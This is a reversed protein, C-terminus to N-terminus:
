RFDIGRAGELQGRAGIRIGFCNKGRALDQAKDPGSVTPAIARKQHAVELRVMFRERSGEASVTNGEEEVAAFGDGMVREGFQGAASDAQNGEVPLVVVPKGGQFGPEAADAVGFDVAQLIGRQFEAPAPFFPALRERQFRELPQSLLNERGKFM